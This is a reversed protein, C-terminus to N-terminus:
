YWWVTFARIIFARDLLKTAAIMDNLEDVLKETTKEQERIRKNARTLRRELSQIQAQTDQTDTM